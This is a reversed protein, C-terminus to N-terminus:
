GHAVLWRDLHALFTQRHAREDHVYHGAGSVVVVELDPSGAAELQAQRADGVIADPMAPDALLVLVPVEVPEAVDFPVRERPLSPDVMVDLVGVDVRLQSSAWWTTTGDAYLQGATSGSPTPVAELQEAFDDVSIGSAQVRPMAAHVLRFVEDLGVTDIPEGPALEEAVILGPDVVLAARVLDPRQQAVALAVVGGLSHGLLLAPRGVVQELVTLADTVFGPGPYREARDSDGHGRLDLRVVRYGDAVLRPVLWAFEEASAIVGHLCVVPVGDAPGDVEVNLELGDPTEVRM